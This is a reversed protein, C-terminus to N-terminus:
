LVIYYIVDSINFKLAIDVCITDNDWWASFEDNVIEIGNIIGSINLSYLSFKSMLNKDSLGECIELDLNPYDDLDPGEISKNTLKIIENDFQLYVCGDSIAEIEGEKFTRNRLVFVNNVRKGISNYIAKLYEANFLSKM